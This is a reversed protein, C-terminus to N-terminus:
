HVILLKDQLIIKGDITYTYIYVGETESTANWEFTGTGKLSQSLVLRGQIDYVNLLGNTNKPLEYEFNTIGSTPNPYFGKKHEADPLAQSGATHISKGLAPLKLPFERGKAMYLYNRARYASETEGYAMELLLEEEADTIDVFSRGDKSVNLLLENLQRFHNDEATTLPLNELLEIAKEWNGQAVHYNTLKRLAYRSNSGELLALAAEKNGNLKHAFVQNALHQGQINAMGPLAAKGSGPAQQSLFNDCYGIPLPFGCDELNINSTLSANTATLDWYDFVLGDYGREIDYGGGNNPVFTNAQPEDDLQSLGPCDGQQNLWGTAFWGDLRIANQTYQGFYNCKIDLETHYGNVSVSQYTYDDFINNYIVGPNFNNEIVATGVDVNEITNNIIGFESAQMLFGFTAQGTSFYSNYNGTTQQTNVENAEIHHTGTVGQVAIWCNEFDNNSITSVQGLNDFVDRLVIGMQCDNFDNEVYVQQQVSHARIGFKVGNFNCGSIGGDGAIEYQDLANIGAESQELTQFPYYLNNSSNFTNNQVVNHNFPSGPTNYWSTNIGQFCNNFSTGTIDLFGGGTTQSHTFLLHLLTLYEIGTFPEINAYTGLFNNITAYDMPIIGMSSVGIIANNLTCDEMSLGGNVPQPNGSGPGKIRIGQWMIGPCANQYVTNETILQGGSEVIIRGNETFELTLDTISLLGSSGIVIDADVVIPNGFPSTAPTWNNATSITNITYTSSIDIENDDKLRDICCQSSEVVTIIAQKEACQVDGIVGSHPINPHNFSRSVRYYIPIGPPTVNIESMGDYAPMATWNTMDTSTEWTFWMDTMENCFGIDTAENPCAYHTMNEMEDEQLEMQDLVLFIFDHGPAQEPHIYIRDWDEDATFCRVHRQWKEDNVFVETPTVVQMSAPNILIHDNVDWTVETRNTLKVYINDMTTTQFVGNCPTGTSGPPPTPSPLTCYQLRRLYTVIYDKGAEVNVPAMIGETINETSPDHDAYLRIKGKLGTPTPHVQSYDPTGYIKEWGLFNICDPHTSNFVDDHWVGYTWSSGSVPPCGPNELDPNCIMQCQSNRGDNCNIAPQAMM